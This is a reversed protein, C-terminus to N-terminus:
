DLLIRYILKKVSSSISSLNFDGTLRRLFPHLGRLDDIWCLAALGAAAGSVTIMGGPAPTSILAIAPWAAGLVTMVAIGGGRPTPAKHSSRENPRDLIARAKLFAATAGTGALVTAFVALFALAYSMWQMPLNYRARHPPRM